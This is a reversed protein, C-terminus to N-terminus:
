EGLIQKLKRKSIGLKELCEKRTGYACGNITVPKANANKTGKRSNGITQKMQQLSEQTHKKGFFGNSNGPHGCKIKRQEAPMIAWLNKVTKGIQLKTEATPKYTKAHNTNRLAEKHAETKAKGKLVASMKLGIKKNVLPGLNGGHGGFAVNYSLPDNIISENIIEKEKANMSEETDFVFLVEKVFNKVGYKQVANSLRTGSGLYDDNINMTKHKGIYYKGNILNTTKYVTFYLPKM